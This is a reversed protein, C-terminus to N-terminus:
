LVTLLAPLGIWGLLLVVIGLAGLYSWSSAHHLVPSRESSDARWIAPLYYAFSLASMLALLVALPWLGAHIAVVLVGLKAFFGISPPMGALSLLALALLGALVPQRQRLVKWPIGHSDEPLVALPLFSALHMLGYALAYVTAAVIGLPGAGLAALFYGAHAVASYGMLRRIRQSRLALLNGAVMSIAALVWLPTTWSESVSALDIWAGLIGVKAVAGLLLVIPAPAGEYIDAVWTHFPAVALEFALAAYLLLLGLHSAFDTLLSGAPPILALSGNGLFLTAVGLGFLASALGALLAYKTAAELAVRRSGPWALLAFFPLVQLELGVFLGLLTQSSVLCLAGLLVTLSLGTLAGPLRRALPHGATFVLVAATALGLYAGLVSASSDWYFGAGLTLRSHFVAAATLIATLAGFGPAWRALHRSLDFFFAIITAAGVLILPELSAEIAM